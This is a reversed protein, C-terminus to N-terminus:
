KDERIKKAMEMFRSYFDKLQDDDRLARLSIEKGDIIDQIHQTMVYIPGSITHTLRILYYFLILGMLIIFGAIISIVIFGSKLIGSLVAIHTEIVKITQKHDQSIKETKLQLDPNSTLDSYKIFANVINQETDVAGKLNSITGNIKIDTLVTHIIMLVLIVFFAIFYFRIVSFATKLQLKKDILKNRKM